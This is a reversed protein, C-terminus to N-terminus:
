LRTLAFESANAHKLHRMMVPLSAHGLNVHLRRIAADVTAKRRGLADEVPPDEENTAVWAPALGARDHALQREMGRHIASVLAPPYVQTAYARDNVAAQHRHGGACKRSIEFAVYPSSTVFEWSKSMPMGSKLDVLGFACGTAVAAFVGPLRRLEAM